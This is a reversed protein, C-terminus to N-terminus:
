FTRYGILLLGIVVANMAIILWFLVFNMGRLREIEDGADRLKHSIDAATEVGLYVAVSHRRLDDVIDYKGGIAIRNKYAYVVVFITVAALAFILGWFSFLSLNERMQTMRSEEEGTPLYALSADAGVGTVGTV